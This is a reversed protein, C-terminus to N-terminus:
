PKRLRAQLEPPLKWQPHAQQFAALRRSAEEDRRQAFLQRIKELEQEPTDSTSPTTDDFALEAVPAPAAKANQM